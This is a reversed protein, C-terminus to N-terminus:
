KAAVRCVCEVVPQTAVPYLQVESVVIVAAKLCDQIYSRVDPGDFILEETPVIYGTARIRSVPPGLASLQGTHQTHAPTSGSGTVDLRDPM